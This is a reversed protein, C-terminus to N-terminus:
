FAVSALFSTDYLPAPFCGLLLRCPILEIINVDIRPLPAGLFLVANCSSSPLSESARLVFMVLWLWGVDVGGRRHGIPKHISVM